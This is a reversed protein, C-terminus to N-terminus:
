GDAPTEVVSARSGCAGAHLERVTRVIDDAVRPSNMIFTHLAPVLVPPELGRVETETVALLGDNPEVGFPSWRGRPGSTGAYIRTPVAPVPLAAMFAADALLRGMEGALFRYLRRRGFCLAARCATAPPALFFCVAPPHAGFAPLAARILVTGLSHGVLVYPDDGVRRQVHGVLRAVCPEFREFTASYGFCSLRFQRAHLRAALVLLSAPTRLLGHILVVRM